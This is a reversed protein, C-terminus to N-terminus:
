DYYNNCALEYEWDSQIHFWGQSYVYSYINWKKVMEPFLDVEIHEWSYELSDWFDRTVMYWGCNTLYRFFNESEPKEVFEEVLNWKITVNWVKEINTRLYKLVFTFNSKNFKHYKIFDDIDLDPIYTDGNTILLYRANKELKKLGELIATWTKALPDVEVYDIEMHPFFSDVNESFKETNWKWVIITVRKIWWLSMIKLQHFIVSKEEIELLYKPKDYSYESDDWKIDHAIIFSHIFDSEREYIQKKLFNEIVSSRNKWIGHYVLSDIEKLLDEDLTIAIKEKM